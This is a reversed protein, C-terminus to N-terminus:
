HHSYIGEEVRKLLIQIIEKLIIKNKETEEKKIEIIQSMIEIINNKISEEEEKNKEKEDEIIILYLKKFNIEKM